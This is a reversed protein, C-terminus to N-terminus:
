LASANDADVESAARISTSKSVIAERGENIPSIVGRYNVM